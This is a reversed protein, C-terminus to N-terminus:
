WYYAPIVAFYHRWFFFIQQSGKHSLFLASLFTLKQASYEDWDWVGARTIVTLSYIKRLVFCYLLQWLASAYLAWPIWLTPVHQMPSKLLQQIRLGSWAAWCGEPSIAAIIWKLLYMEWKVWDTMVDERASPHFQCHNSYSPSERLMGSM